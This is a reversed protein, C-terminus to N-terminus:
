VTHPSSFEIIVNLGDINKFELLASMKKVSLRILRLGLSQEPDIEDIDPVGTIVEYLM